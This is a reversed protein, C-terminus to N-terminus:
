MAEGSGFVQDFEPTSYVYDPNFERIKRALRIIKYQSVVSWVFGISTSYTDVYAVDLGSEEFQKRNEVESSVFACVEVGQKALAKAMDLIYPPGGGKRGLHIIAIRM